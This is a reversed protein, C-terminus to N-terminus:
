GWGSIAMDRPYANSLGGELETKLGLLFYGWKTSCHHMFEVPEPWGAHTFLVVTEDGADKLEYTITTDIWEEPGKVCRWRVLTPSVLDVIEMAVWPEPFGFNFALTGGPQSDGEVDNTWWSAVGERTALAKYVEDAPASIGVRHRIDPM